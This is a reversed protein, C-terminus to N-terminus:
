KTFGNSNKGAARYRKMECGNKDIYLLDPYKKQVATAFNHYFGRENGRSDGPPVLAYLGAEKVIYTKHYSM